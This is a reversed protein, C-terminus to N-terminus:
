TMPYYITWPIVDPIDRFGDELDSTLSQNAPKVTPRGQGSTSASAFCIAM